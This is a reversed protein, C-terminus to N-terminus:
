CIRLKNDAVLDQSLLYGGSPDFILFFNLLDWCITLVEFVHKKYGAM